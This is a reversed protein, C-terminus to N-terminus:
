SSRRSQYMHPDERQHSSYRTLENVIHQSASPTHDPPSLLERLPGLAHLQDTPHALLQDACRMIAGPNLDQIFEPIIKQHLLINPLTIHEVKLLRRAIAATLASVQYLAIVPRELLAAELIMNGSAGIILDAAQMALYRQDAPLCQIETSLSEPRLFDDAVPLLCVGAYQACLQQGLKQLVPTLRQVEHRRSGPMLCFVPHEPHLGLQQRATTKSCPAPLLHLLPHRIRATRAGCASYYNYEPKFVSLILLDLEAMRRAQQSVGWLWDQPALYYIVPIGLQCAIRALKLNLGQFDILIVAAPRAQHLWHRLRQFLHQFWPLHRLNESLGVASRSLPTALLRMGATQMRVGGIGIFHAEPLEQRLSGILDAGYIDGSVEGASLFILPRAPNIKKNDM